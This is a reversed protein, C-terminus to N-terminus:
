TETRKPYYAGKLKNKDAEDERISPVSRLAFLASVLLFAMDDDEPITPTSIHTM